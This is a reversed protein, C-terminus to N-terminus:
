GKVSLDLLMIIFFIGLIYRNKFPTNQDIYFTNYDRM